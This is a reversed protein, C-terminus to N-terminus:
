LYNYDRRNANVISIKELECFKSYNLLPGVYGEGGGGGLLKGM